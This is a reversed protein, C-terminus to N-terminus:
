GVHQLTSRSLGNSNSVFCALLQRNNSNQIHQALSQHLCFLNHSAPLIFFDVLTHKIILISLSISDYVIADICAHPEQINVGGSATRPLIRKVM